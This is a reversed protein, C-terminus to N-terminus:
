TSWNHWHNACRSCVEFPGKQTLSKRLKQYRPGNFIRQFSEKTVNGMPLGPCTWVTGDPYVFAEHFPAQCSSRFRQLPKDMRLYFKKMEELSFDPEVQVQAIYTFRAKKAKQLQEYICDIDLGDLTHENAEWWSTTIGFEEQWRRNTQEIIQPTTVELHQFLLLDLPLKENELTKALELLFGANESFLTCCVSLFPKKQARQAKMRALAKLGAVAKEFGGKVKRIRDNIEPPGDLSVHVADFAEFVPEAFKCLELGNTTVECFLGKQKIHQALAYWHPSLLPEGGILCIRPKSSAVEDVITKLTDLSLEQNLKEPEYKLSRGLDGWQGCM